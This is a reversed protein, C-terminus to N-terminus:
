DYLAEIRTEMDAESIMGYAIPILRRTRVNLAIVAPAVTVGLKTAMGNDPLITFGELQGGDMAIAMVKFGYKDSFRKVTPAFAECFKCSSKFFFFLGYEQALNRILQEREAQQLSHYVHISSQNVPSKISEDLEPTTYIVKMWNSAFRQSKDTVQKQLRIYNTINDRTPNDIALNLRRELEKRMASINAEATALQKQEDEEEIPKTEYWHWGEARQEFFRAESLTPLLCVLMM